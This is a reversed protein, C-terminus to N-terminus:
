EPRDTKLKLHRIVPKLAESRQLRILRKIEMVKNGLLLNGRASSLYKHASGHNRYEFRSEQHNWCYQINPSTKLFTDM